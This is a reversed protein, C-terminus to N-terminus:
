HFHTPLSLFPHTSPHSHPLLFASSTCSGGCYGGCRTCTYRTTPYAQTQVAPLRTDALESRHVGHDTVLVSDIGVAAAGAIDHLM